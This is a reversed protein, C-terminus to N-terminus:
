LPPELSNTLVQLAEIDSELRPVAKVEVPAQADAKDHSVYMWGDKDKVAKWM